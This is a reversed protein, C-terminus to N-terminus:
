AGGSSQETQDGDPNPNEPAGGPEPGNQPEPVPQVGPDANPNLRRILGEGLEVLERQSRGLRDLSRPDNAGAEAAIRTEAMIQAQLFRLMKLEAIPPLLPQQGGQGSGGQGGGGGPEGFPDEEGQDERLVDILAQILVVARETEPLAPVPRGDTLAEAARGAAEDLARHTYEIVRAEELEDLQATLDALDKRVSTQDAALERAAARERRDLEAIRTLPRVGDRVATQRELMARYAARLELKRRQQEAQQQQRDLEEAQQRADRLRDLSEQEEPRVADASAPVARLAGIARGQADAARGVLRAVGVLERGAARADDAVGLSNRNLRIMAQDLPGLPDGNREAFDLNTLEAEQAVILGDIADMLSALARRLQEQRAREDRQIEELMQELTQEAQRQARSADSTRNQQADRAAQQQRDSLQEQRARQGAKQLGAAAGPDQQQIQEAREPLEEALRRAREALEQQAEVIRELDTRDQASVESAEQGATRAGVQETQQRLARQADLLAEIERRSVWTDQGADLAEILRALEDRVREQDARVARSQEDTLSEDAGPNEERARAAAEDLARAARDSSAGAERMAQRAEDLLDALPADSLANRRVVERLRDLTEAQRALREGIQTQSTRTPRDARRDATRQLAEAQQEDARIAAQRVASLESRIDEILEAESIIRLRRLASRSAARAGTESALIDLAAAAIWVEDGPTVGLTSLDLRHEVRVLRQGAAEARAVVEPEGTPELAGGPVSPEGAGARKAVQRELWVAELGVDDRGEGLVDIVATALVSEDTGPEVVTASAPADLAAEFRFVPEDISEIGFEDRLAVPFRVTESLTWEITWRTGDASISLGAGPADPGLAAGLAGSDPGPSPLPKNLDLTFVVRSGALAAPATAREDLGAGMDLEVPAALAGPRDTQIALRAAYEPPTILARAAVVAPPPVIRVRRWATEDDTTRFRYEVASADAEVLREFLAGRQPGSRAAGTPIDVMRRQHTMLATRTPGARGSDDILRYQAALYTSDPDRPTRTVAARLPLAAGLPHVQAETVDVVGTRKPWEAGAWPALARSVGISALDPRVLAAVAVAAVVVVFRAASNLLRRPKLIAVDAGSWRNAASQVVARELASELPQGAGGSQHFEVASALVGRLEPRSREVRLAVETLSPRFRWAPRLVLALLALLAAGGLGLNVVRIWEPLRLFFDIAGFVFLAGLAAAAIFLARQGLLMLRARARTRQLARIVSQINPSPNM